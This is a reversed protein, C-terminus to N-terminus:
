QCPVYPWRGQPIAYVNIKMFDITVLVTFTVMDEICANVCSFFNVHIFKLLSVHLM